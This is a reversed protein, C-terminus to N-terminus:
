FNRLFTQGVIKFNPVFMLYSLNYQTYMFSGAVYQKDTGKNTWKKKRELLNFHYSRQHSGSPTHSSQESKAINLSSILIYWHQLHNNKVKLQVDLQIQLDMLSLISIHGEACIRVLGGDDGWGWLCISSDRACLAM